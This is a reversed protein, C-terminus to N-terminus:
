VLLHNLNLEIEILVWLYSFLIQRLEVSLFASITLGFMMIPTQVVTGKSQTHPNVIAKDNRRDLFFYFIGM